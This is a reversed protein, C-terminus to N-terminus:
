DQDAGDLTFRFTAGKGPAAEAWLRGGHRRVIRWVTALGIGTGEFRDQRHLRQFPEFIRAAEAMDFGVGNDRVFYVTEGDVTEAGFEICAAENERSYKWANGLLNALVSQMLSADAVATVGPQIRTEFRRRQDRERLEAVIEAVRESLNVSSRHLESRTSRAFALLDEVMQSMSMSARSIRMLCDRGDADLKDAYDELLIGAFGRMSRLPAQLDHSASYSFAELEQNARALDATRAAVQEELTDRELQLQRRAEGLSATMADFAQAVQAVEDHGTIGTRASFDAEAVRRMTDVIRRVRRTLMAYLMLWLLLALGLLFAALQWAAQRVGAAAAAKREQLDYELFLLGAHQARLAGGRLGLQLPFLAAVSNGDAALRSLGAMRSQVAPAEALMAANRALRPLAAEASEGLLSVRSSAIVVGRADIVAAIRHGSEAGLASLVAQVSEGQGLRYFAELTGEMRNARQTIADFAATEVARDAQRLSYQLVGGSVLLTFALLLIPIGTRLSRGTARAALMDLLGLLTRKM